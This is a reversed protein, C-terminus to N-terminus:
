RLRLSLEWTKDAEQANPEIRLLAGAETSEYYFMQGTVPHHPVPVQQIDSLRAPLRGNAASYMRIAELVRLGDLQTQLRVEARRVDALAPLLAQGIPLSEGKDRLPELLGQDRLRAIAKDMASGAEQYPLYSWKFVEDYLKHLERSEHIAVVQAAPMANLKEASYGSEILERKARPYARTMIGAMLLRQQGPAVFESLISLREDIVRRWQDASYTLSEPDQLFPFLALPLSRENDIGRRIDILPRPLSALAWYLNPAGEAACLQMLRENMMGAISMGVLQSVLIPPQAVDQALRYGVTLTSVAADYRRQHIEVALKLSLIRALSRVDQAEDLHFQIQKIGELDRVRWDWDCYERHAALQLDELVAKISAQSLLQQAEDLPIQDPPLEHWQSIREMRDDGAARALGLIARYYYPAANGPKLDLYQPVLLSKLAPVPEAAPSLELEIRRLREERSVANPRETDAREPGQPGLRVQARCLSSAVLVVILWPGGRCAARAIPRNLQKTQTM